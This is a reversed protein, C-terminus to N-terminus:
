RSRRGKGVSKGARPKAGPAWPLDSDDIKEPKEDEPDIADEEDEDEDDSDEDEDDSDEDEDDSDEDEDDSDEDEDDSGEDEDDSDEDEDDSGEDEVPADKRPGGFSLEEVGDGGAPEDGDIVFGEEESPLKAIDRVIKAARVAGDGEIVLYVEEFGQLNEGAREALGLGVRAASGLAPIRGYALPEEVMPYRSPDRVWHVQVESILPLIEDEDWVGRPEWAVNRGTALLREFLQKLRTRNRQSPGLTAPTQVLLWKAQLVNAARLGFDLAKESDPDFAGVSPAMRVAFEFGKPAATRWQKL